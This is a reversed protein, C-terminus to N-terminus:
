KTQTYLSLTNKTFCNLAGATKQTKTTSGTMDVKRAPQPPSPLPLGPALPGTLTVTEGAVAVTEAPLTKLAKTAVTAPVALVLTVQSTSLTAPPLLVVPVM